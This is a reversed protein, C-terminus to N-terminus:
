VLPRRRSIAAIAFLQDREFVFRVVDDTAHLLSPTDTQEPLDHANRLGEAALINREPRRLVLPDKVDMEPHLLNRGDLHARGATMGDTLVTRGQLVRCRRDVM